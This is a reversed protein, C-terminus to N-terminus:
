MLVYHPDESGLSPHQLPWSGNLFPLYSHFIESAAYKAYENFQKWDSAMPHTQAAGVIEEKSPYGMDAALSHMFPEMVPMYPYCHVMMEALQKTTLVQVNGM